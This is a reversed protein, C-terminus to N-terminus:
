KNQKPKARKIEFEEDGYDRFNKDDQQDNQDPDM